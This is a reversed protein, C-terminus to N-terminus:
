SWDPGNPEESDIWSYGYGDPGGQERNNFGPFSFEVASESANHLVTHVVASDNVNVTAELAPPDFYVPAQASLNFPIVFQLIFLLLYLNKMPLQTPSPHFVFQVPNCIYHM